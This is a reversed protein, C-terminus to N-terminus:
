TWASGAASASAASTAPTQDAEARLPPHSAFGISLPAGRQCTLGRKFPPM